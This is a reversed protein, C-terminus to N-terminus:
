PRPVGGLTRPVAAPPHRPRRVGRDPRHGARRRCNVLGDPFYHEVPKWLKPYRNSSFERLGMWDRKGVGRLENISLVQDEDESLEVPFEWGQAEFVIGLVKIEHEHCAAIFESDNVFGYFRSRADVPGFAEQELYPLSLSGGGM